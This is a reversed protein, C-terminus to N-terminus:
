IVNWNHGLPRYQLSKNLQEAENAKRELMQDPRLRELREKLREWLKDKDEKSENLLSDYDMTVEADTVGLNGGFKGRVRGLTEKCLATFYDRVWQKSPTNLEDFNVVDVPVDSPLKVIDKNANLCRQREDPDKTDYYHYWVKSGTM